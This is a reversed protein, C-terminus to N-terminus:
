QRRRSGLRVISEHIGRAPRAFFEGIIDLGTAERGIRHRLHEVNVFPLRAVM